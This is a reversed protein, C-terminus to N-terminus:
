NYLFACSGPRALSFIVALISRPRSTDDMICLRGHLLYIREKKTKVLCIKSIGLWNILSSWHWTWLAMIHLYTVESWSQNSWDVSQADKFGLVLPIMHLTFLDSETSGTRRNCWVANFLAVNLGMFLCQCSDPKRRVSFRRILQACMYEVAWALLSFAM